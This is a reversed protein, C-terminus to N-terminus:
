FINPRLVGLGRLSYKPVSLFILFLLPLLVDRNRKVAGNLISRINLCRPCYVSSCLFFGTQRESGNGTSLLGFCFASRSCHKRDGM